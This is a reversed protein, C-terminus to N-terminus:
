SSGASRPSDSDTATLGLEIADALARLAAVIAVRAPGKPTELEASGLLVEHRGDGAHWVLWADTFVHAPRGARRRASILFHAM